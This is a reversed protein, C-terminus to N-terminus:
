NLNSPEISKEWFYNFSINALTVLRINTTWIGTRTLNKFDKDEEGENTIVVLEEGDRIAFVPPKNINFKLFRFQNITPVIIEQTVKKTIKSNKVNSESLYIINKRHIHNKNPESLKKIGDPMRRSLKIYYDLTNIACWNTKTRMLM